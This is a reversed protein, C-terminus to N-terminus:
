RSITAIPARSKTERKPGQPDMALPIALNRSPSVIRQRGQGLGTVFDPASGQPLSAPAVGNKMELQGCHEFTWTQSWAGIASRM